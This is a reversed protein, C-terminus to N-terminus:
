NAYVNEFTVKIFSNIGGRNNFETELLDILNERDYATLENKPKLYLKMETYPLIGSFKRYRGCRSIFRTREIDLFRNMDLVTCSSIFNLFDARTIYTGGSYFQTLFSRWLNRSDNGAWGFFPMGYTTGGSILSSNGLCNLKTAPKINPLAEFSEYLPYYTLKILPRAPRKGHKFLIKAIYPEQYVREARYIFNGQDPAHHCSRYEVNEQQDIIKDIYIGQNRSKLKLPNSSRIYLEDGKYDTLQSDIISEYRDSYLFINPIIKGDIKKVVEDPNDPWKCCIWFAEIGFKESRKLGHFLGSPLNLLNGELMNVPYNQDLMMCASNIGRRDYYTDSMPNGAEMGKKWGRTKLRDLITRYHPCNIDLYFRCSAMSERCATIADHTRSKQELIFGLWLAGRDAKVVIGSSGNDEYQGRKLGLLFTKGVPSLINSSNETEMALQLRKLDRDGPFFLEEFANRHHKVSVSLWLGANKSMWGMQKRLLLELGSYLQIGEVSKSYFQEFSMAQNM